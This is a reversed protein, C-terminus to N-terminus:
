AKVPTTMDLWLLAEAYRTQDGDSAAARSPMADDLFEPIKGVEKAFQFCAQTRDVEAIAHMGLLLARRICPIAEVPLRVHEYLSPALEPTAVSESAM